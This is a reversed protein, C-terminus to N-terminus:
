AVPLGAERLQRLINDPGSLKYTKGGPEDINLLLVEGDDVFASFRRSRTGLSDLEQSLGLKKVYSAEPDALFTIVEPVVVLSGAWATMVYPDNVSLCFIRSAGFMALEKRNAVYEPVQKTSCVSTFAGPLGFLVFTGQFLEETSVKRPGDPGGCLERRLAGEHLCDVEDGYTSHQPLLQVEDQPPHRPRLFTTEAGRNGGLNGPVQLLRRSKLRERKKRFERGGTEVARQNSTYRFTTGTLTDHCDWSNDGLRKLTFREFPDGGRFSRLCM